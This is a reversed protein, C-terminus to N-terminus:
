EESPPEAKAEVQKVIEKVQELSAPQPPPPGFPSEQMKATLDEYQAMAIEIQRILAEAAALMNDKFVEAGREIEDVKAKFEAVRGDIKAATDEFVKRIAQNMIKTTASVRDPHVSPAYQKVADAVERVKDQMSQTMEDELSPPTPEVRQQLPQRAKQQVVKPLNLMSM